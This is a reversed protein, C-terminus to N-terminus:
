RYRLTRPGISGHINFRGLFGRTAILRAGIFIRIHIARTYFNRETGVM